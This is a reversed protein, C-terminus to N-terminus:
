HRIKRPDGRLVAAALIEGHRGSARLLLSLLLRVERVGLEPADVKLAKEYLAERLTQDVIGAREMRLLFGRAAPTLKRGEDLSPVRTATPPVALLNVPGAGGARLTRLWSLAREVEDEQFGADALETRLHGPDELAKAIEGYRRTIFDVVDFLNGKM